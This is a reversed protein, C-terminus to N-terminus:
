SAKAEAAPSSGSDPAVPAAQSQEEPKQDAAEPNPRPPAPMSSNKEPKKRKGRRSLKDLLMTLCEQQMPTIHEISCGVKHGDISVRRVRGSLRLFDGYQPHFLNFSTLPIYIQIQELRRFLEDGTLTLGFGVLSLDNLVGLFAKDKELRYCRVKANHSEFRKAARSKTGDIRKLRRSAEMVDLPLTIYDDLEEYLHMKQRYELILSKEDKTLFLIPCKKRKKAEFAYDIIAKDSPLFSNDIAILEVNKIIILKLAEDPDELRILTHNPLALTVSREFTRIDTENTRKSSYLVLVYRKKQRAKEAQMLAATVDFPM